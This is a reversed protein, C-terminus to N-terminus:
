GLSKGTVLIKYGWAALGILVGGFIIRLPTCRYTNLRWSRGTALAHIGFPLAAITALALLAGLPQVLFARFVRGRVMLAFSTTMGCTPCPIGYAAPWGCRALGLQTHTDFGQPDPTLWASVALLGAAVLILISAKVRVNTRDHEPSRYVFPGLPHRTPAEVSNQDPDSQSMQSNEIDGLTQVTWTKRLRGAVAACGDVAPVNLNIPKVM